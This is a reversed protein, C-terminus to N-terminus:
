WPLRGHGVLAGAEGSRAAAIRALLGEMALDLTPNLEMESRSLQIEDLVRALFGARSPVGITRLSELRDRHRVSEESGVAVALADAVLGAAGDLVHAWGDTLARRLERKQQDEAKKLATREGRRGALAEAEARLRRLEESPHGDAEAAMQAQIERILAGGSREGRLAREALDVGLLRMSREFPGATLASAGDARALGAAAEPAIGDAELREAVLRWGPSRFPVPLCRSRITPLLDSVHDTVLILHSRRPPEELLKLIRPAGEQERLREAGDIIVVRRKGVSPRASLDALAPELDAELRISAGTAAVITLDMSAQDPGHAGEPDILAWATARAAARKGTGPPGFFLLQQPPDPRGLAARLIREALPQDRVAIM